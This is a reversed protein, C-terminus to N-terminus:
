KTKFEVVDLDMLKHNLGVIQGAFKSSPGWIKTEKIRASLGKLIKEAVDKITSDKKMIIPRDTRPKGPEKTYVRIKDFGQFIKNKLGEINERTKSSVMIFNYKRSQLTASIKRKENEPLIDTKNFVIIKKANSKESLKQLEQIQGLNTILMLLVDATNTLGRDYFESEVSPNEILQIGTGAFFMIGIVPEKTTFKSFGGGSIKPSVNTLASLLSSKGTGTKGIIVAQMSEKKIGAKGGRSKKEATIKEKLKIYRTKLNALMKESSKHKPCERIMEELAEFKEEKTKAALFKAEAQMYFPSQNTSAM